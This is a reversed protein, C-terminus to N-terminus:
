IDSGDGMCIDMIMAEYQDYTIFGSESLDRLIELVRMREKIMGGQASVEALSEIAKEIM